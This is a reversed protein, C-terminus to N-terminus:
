AIILIIIILFIIGKWILRKKRILYLLFIFFYVGLTYIREARTELYLIKNEPKELWIFIGGLITILAFLNATEHLRVDPKRYGNYQYSYGESTMTIYYEYENKKNKLMKFKLYKGEDIRGLTGLFYLRKNKLNFKNLIDRHINSIMKEVFFIAKEFGIDNFSIENTGIYGVDKYINKRSLKHIFMFSILIQYELSQEDNIKFLKFYIRNLFLVLKNISLM